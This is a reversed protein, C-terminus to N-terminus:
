LYYKKKKRVVKYFSSRLLVFFLCAGKMALHNSFLKNFFLSDAKIKLQLIFIIKEEKKLDSDDSVERQLKEKNLLICETHSLVESNYCYDVKINEKLLM